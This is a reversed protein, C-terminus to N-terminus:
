AVKQKAAMSLTYEALAVDPVNRSDRLLLWRCPRAALAADVFGSPRLVCEAFAYWAAAAALGVAGGALTQRLTHYGLYVRSVAVAAGLVAAGAQAIRRHVRHAGTQREFYLAVYLAFFGMFQAHSSPMGYGDGLHRHPREERVAEKLALSLAENLLQGALLLVGAVERRSFVITTEAVVLFVPALSALALLMGLRDGEVYQFHTLGLSKLQQAQPLGEAVYSAQM